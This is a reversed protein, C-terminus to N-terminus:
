RSGRRVVWARAPFKSPGGGRTLRGSPPQGRRREGKFAAAKEIGKWMARQFDIWNEHVIDFDDGDEGRIVSVSEAIQYVKDRKGEREDLMLWTYGNISSRVLLAPMLDELISRAAANPDRRLWTMVSVQAICLRNCGGLREVGDEVDDDIEISPLGPWLCGFVARAPWELVWLHFAEPLYEHQELLKTVYADRDFPQLKALTWPRTRLFDPSSIVDLYLRFLAHRTPLIPSTPVLQRWHQCVGYSTILSKLTLYSFIRLLLENPFHNIDAPM